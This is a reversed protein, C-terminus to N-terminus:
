NSELRDRLEQIWDAHKFEENLKQCLKMGNVAKNKEPTDGSVISALEQYAQDIMKNEIFFDYNDASAIEAHANKFRVWRTELDDSGRSELRHWLEKMSPPLIFISVADTLAPKAKTWGQVDIELLPSKGLGKIRELEAFSTGYCNNHVHAWEIFASEDVLRMFTDRDIFHYHVGNTEGKRPQRTTHSVSMLVDSRQAILKRNLTTKGTGSPASVVFTHM